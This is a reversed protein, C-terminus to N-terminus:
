LGYARLIENASTSENSDAVARGEKNPKSKSTVFSKSRDRTKACELNVDTSGYRSTALFTVDVMRGSYIMIYPHYNELLYAYYDAIREMARSGGSACGEQILDFNFNRPLCRATSAFEQTCAASALFNSGGELFGSFVAGKLIEPSRDIIKGALGTQGHEDTVVGVVQTEQSTGDKKFVILKEIRVRVRETSLDGYASGILYADKMQAVLGKPLISNDMVRLKVFVPNEAACPHFSATIGNELIAKVTTGAIVGNHVTLREECLERGYETVLDITWPSGMEESLGDFIEGQDLSHTEQFQGGLQLQHVEKTCQEQMEKVMQLAQQADLAQARELTVSEALADLKGKLGGMEKKQDNLNSELAKKEETLREVDAMLRGVLLEKPDDIFFPVDAHSVEKTKVLTHEGGFPNIVYCVLFGSVCLIGAVLQKQHQKIKLISRRM